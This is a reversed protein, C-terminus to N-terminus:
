RGWNRFLGSLLGRRSRAERGEWGRSIRANFVGCFGGETCGVMANALALILYKIIGVTGSGANLLELRLLGLSFQISRGRLLPGSRRPALGRTSGLLGCARVSYIISQIVPSTPKPDECTYSCLTQAIPKARRRFSPKDWPDRAYSHKSHFCSLPPRSQIRAGPCPHWPAKSMASPIVSPTLREYAPSLPLAQPGSQLPQPDTAVVAEIGRHLTPTAFSPRPWISLVTVLVAIACRLWHRMRATKAPSGQEEM